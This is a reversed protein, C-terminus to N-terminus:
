SGARDDDLIADDRKVVAVNEEDLALVQHLRNEGVNGPHFRRPDDLGHRRVDGAEHRSHADGVDAHARIRLERPNAGRPDNWNGVSGGELLGRRKWNRHQGCPVENMRTVVGARILDDQDMRGCTSYSDRRNLDRARRARLHEPGYGAIVLGVEDPLEARLFDDVVRRMIEGSLRHADGVAAANIQDEVRDPLRRELLTEGAERGEAMQNEVAAGASRRLWDVKAAM